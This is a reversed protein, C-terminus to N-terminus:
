AQEASNIRLLTQANYDALIVAGCKECVVQQKACITTQPHMEAGCDCTITWRNTRGDKSLGLYKLKM